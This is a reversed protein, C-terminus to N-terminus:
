RVYTNPVPIDSSNGFQQIQVGSTSGLIFWTASSPRFVAADIKGDGDYDGPATIDGPSGFPFAYFSSDESRLVFWNATSPSFVAVDTKGDGTYDGPVAKDTSAGFQVAFLGATSRLMWWEAGSVGNLRYIAIDAKNDGDYDGVVPLDTSNGFQQITVGSDSSRLIFWTSSSPRYVAADAKNDGDFDGPAPIDNAQGFPFAYFTSDESRLVFWEGTPPRFLAIDTKGDGTFDAPTIKDTSAGFQVAFVQSNSSRRYWWEAPGSRFISIDTKQDGDFDFPTKATGPTFTCNYNGAVTVTDVFWGGGTPATNDDAGFRWRLQVNQGAASVPLQVTSTIYGGSNGTWASRNAIPNNTGGGLAGNYGNLIFRGGATIIDQFAGGGISIELVGGDWGDETNYSHRFSVAAAPATIPISPSTLNTGGGVTLPDLAFVTNPATDPNNTTVVFNVGGNVSAATWGAPLNPATVGDFNESFTTVPQGIILQRQFSTAGLSSNVNFTLTLVTGCATGSPVTFTATRNVTSNNLVTGYNASGGGVVQLTTTDANNGTNNFLPITLTLTEGPEASGNGNGITEVFSFEPTQLLNPLDFAEVVRANGSGSGAALVKAGAGMGRIRFGEWIDAVDASAQPGPLTAQAAAIIADREQLFTPGFPALKMGDTIYQLVRRNGETWDLRTVYRARVEWLASSWVEGANHVQDAFGGGSPPFAGDGLNIQTADIDAFTLPNHPRNSAGGTFAMVAKPFRRIGYYYNNTGISGLLYTDYGGTTYIGNIPDSPESLLAHAYFDSWGEGMGRSMNSSLGSANGHLRNSTGHTLEHIVVDADLNGDIDPNPATWVYMQMRGRTGDALTSFNANNTGSSDQGEGRIRDNGVGGRSFNDHQFNRAQETFGLRYLEDHYWNSIYFLQTISGQQFASGPYTQPNAVPADGTNTNPNFPNYTYTFNRSANTAESNTDVGDVGDRDLGAQLANGDTKTVGDNIWGLNNFTYPAENGIRTISTRSIAAGQQGNRTAPGPTMPFPSDAVNIMANSNSYVSYTAAQTQDETTNKRWLMTGTEADVIVYFANVPQWILVRWAPRAVGPETPFYMKEATTASDGTGFTIKLDDSASGNQKLDLSDANINIHNAAAKVADLPNRFDTSLSNYDLGPALNNIVRIMRGDKTFGAKVEGRFVPIDNIFQELHAFSLNGDPNTYDATVKLTDAQADSVGILADNERVFNRLIEARNQSSASTLFNRGQLVDPAIVEPTRIDSNYEVKLSPVRTKLAAEGDVFSQRIDAVAVADKNSFQRFEALKEFASKDARIDYNELGPVHSETKQFLGNGTKNGAESRFMNPLAFLVAALGLVFLSFLLGTRSVTQADKQM